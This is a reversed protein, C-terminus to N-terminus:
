PPPAAVDIPNCRPWLGALADVDASTPAVTLNDPNMLSLRETTSVHVLGFAHGIEHAVTVALPSDVLDENVFIEGHQADYLGHFPSAATQFHVPVSASSAGGAAGVTLGTGASSNWLASGGALGATQATTAAADPQLTITACPDFHIAPGTSSADAGCGVTCGLAASLLLFVSSPGRTV